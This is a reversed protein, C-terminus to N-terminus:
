THRVGDLFTLRQQGSQRDHFPVDRVVECHSWHHDLTQPEAAMAEVKRCGVRDSLRRQRNVELYRREM